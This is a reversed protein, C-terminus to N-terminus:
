HTVTFPQWDKPAYDSASDSLYVAIIRMENKMKPDAIRIKM